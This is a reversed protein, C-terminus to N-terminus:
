LHRRFFLNQKQVDQFSIPAAIEVLENKATTPGTDLRGSRGGVPRCSKARRDVDHCPVGIGGPHWVPHMRLVQPRQKQVVIEGSTAELHIVSRDRNMVNADRYERNSGFSVVDRRPARHELEMEQSIGVKREHQRVAPVVRADEGLRPVLVSMKAHGHVPM